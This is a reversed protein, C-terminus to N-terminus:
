KKELFANYRGPLTKNKLYWEVTSKIGQTLTIVNKFGSNELLKTDMIRIADGTPKSTDWSIKLNQFHSCIESTLSSISVGIGSGVNVPSMIEHEVVHVMARAVDYAHVFDRIATGDGWVRLPNEGNAARSILSPIVMGTSPDFNDWPGYINAPRVIYTKNWNNEIKAAELQLEGMRKAWGAFRDNESPFTKWVDNEFFIQAPAYVGISSTYLFEKVANRRSAEIINLNFLTTNFFFTNPKNLAVAPSGKIGAVHFVIDIDKTVALCTNFDRLDGKVLKISKNFMEHQDNVTDISIGTIDAGKEILLNVLQIGVMGTAGTVLVKKNKFKNM